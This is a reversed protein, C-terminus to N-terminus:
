LFAEFKGFFGFCQLFGNLNLSLHQKLSFHEEDTQWEEGKGKQM